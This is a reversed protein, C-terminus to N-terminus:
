GSRKLHIMSDINDRVNVVQEAWVLDEISIRSEGVNLVAKVLPWPGVFVVIYGAEQERTNAFMFENIYTDVNANYHLVRNDFIRNDTTPSVVSWEVGSWEVVTRQPWVDSFLL